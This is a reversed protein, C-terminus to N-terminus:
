PAILQEGLAASISRSSDVLAQLATRRRAGALRQSPAVVSLSARVVSSSDRIPVAITTVGFDIEDQSVAYGSVRVQDVRRLAEEELHSTAGVTQAAVERRILQLVREEGQFALIARASAAHLYPMRQGLGMYFRIMGQSESTAVVYADDGHLETVFVSEHVRSRLTELFPAASQAIADHRLFARAWRLVVPGLKYYRTDQDQQVVDHDVLV